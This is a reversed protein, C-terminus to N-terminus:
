DYFRLGDAESMDTDDSDDSDEEEKIQVGGEYESALSDEDSPPTSQQQGSRGGHPHGSHFIEPFAQPEKLALRYIYAEVM